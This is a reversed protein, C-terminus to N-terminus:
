LTPISHCLNVGGLTKQLSFFDFNQEEYWLFFRELSDIVIHSAKKLAVM